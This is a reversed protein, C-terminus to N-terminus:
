RPAAFRKTCLVFELDAIATINRVELASQREFAQMPYRDRLKGFSLWTEM